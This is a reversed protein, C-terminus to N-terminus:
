EKEWLLSDKKSRNDSSSLWQLNTYHSLKILDEETEALSLPIIHDVDISIDSNKIPNVPSTLYLHVLLDDYDCGLVDKTKVSYTTNKVARKVISRMKLKFRYFSSENRKKKERIRKKETIDSKNEQYYSAHYKKYKDYNDLYYKRSRELSHERNDYYWKSRRESCKEKNNEYYDKNAKKVKEPNTLVYKKRIKKKCEKCKSTLYKGDKYFMSDDKTVLCGNCKKM